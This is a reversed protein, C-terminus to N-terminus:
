INASRGLYTGDFQGSQITITGTLGRHNADSSGEATQYYSTRLNNLAAASTRGINNMFAYTPKMVLLKKDSSNVTLSLSKSETVGSPVILKVAQEYSDDTFVETINCTFSNSDNDTLTYQSKNQIFTPSGGFCCAIVNSAVIEYGTDDIHVLDSIYHNIPVWGMMSFAPIGLNEKIGNKVTQVFNWLDDTIYIQNNLFVVVRANTFEATMENIRAVFANITESSTKGTRFDNIGGMAIILKVNEHNFSTDNIATQTQGKVNGNLGYDADEGYFSSGNQAYNHINCVINEEFIVPWKTYTTHNPDTDAWSDGIIVVDPVAETTEEIINQGDIQSLATCLRIFYCNSPTTITENGISINSIYTKDAAYFNHFITSSGPHQSIKYKTNPKVSIYNSVCYDANNVISNSNNIVLGYECNFKNFVTIKEATSKLGNLLDSSYKTLVIPDSSKFTIYMKVAGSPIAIIMNNHVGRAQLVNNSSDFIGYGFSNLAETLGTILLLTNPIVKLENVSYGNLTEIQNASIRYGKNATTDNADYISEKSEFAALMEIQDRVADGASSYTTGDYGIRIDVLEADATTSGDPLAIINDIREDLLADAAIRNSIEESIATENASIDSTNQTIAATNLAINATNQSINNRNQSINLTNTEINSDVSDFKDKVTKNAIANYSSNSFNIDIKFPSVLRWYLANTILIGAPVNKIAIKMYGTESDLVVSWISYQKTIDWIGEYKVSNAAEFDNMEEALEKIKKLMWDLNMEHFDSYPFQNLFNSM